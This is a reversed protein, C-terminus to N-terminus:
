IKWLPEDRWNAKMGLAREDINPYKDLLQNISRSFDHGPSIRDLIYKLLCIHIYLSKFEKQSPINSIWAFPPAKLLKPKGPLNKNWLRSHHACINRLQAICQLWSPLYTHNVAGFHQAIIDKSLTTSRLNGYLKSLNGISSLELTMWSPPLRGDEKYKKAYNVIFAERSRSIENKLSRLTIEHYEQNRFLEPDEFWWPNFEHSLHYVLVSRLAIEVREIADFIILRLERDFSYIQVVNEFTSGPKFSHERKDKQM